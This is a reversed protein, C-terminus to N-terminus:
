AGKTQFRQKEGRKEIVNKKRRKKTELERDNKKELWEM